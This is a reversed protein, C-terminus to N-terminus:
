KAFALIAYGGVVGALAGASVVAAVARALRFREVKRKQLIAVCVGVIVVLGNLLLGLYVCYFALIGGTIVSYTYFLFNIGLMGGFFRAYFDRELVANSPTTIM